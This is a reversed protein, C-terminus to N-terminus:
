DSGYGLSSLGASRALGEATTFSSAAAICFASALLGVRWRGKAAIFGAITGTMASIIAKALLSVKKSAFAITFPLDALHPLSATIIEVSFPLSYHVIM